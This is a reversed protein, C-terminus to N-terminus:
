AEVTIFEFKEVDFLGMDTLKLKPIVPLSMFSLTMVPDIGPEIGLKQHAVVHIHQLQEEVWIGSQDSMIGGVPLPMSSLVHGDLVIAIGGQINKIEEIAKFMDSNSVGAVIINHSDHAVSVAIAGRKLGFGQLLAVGVNGTHQHREVVAVKVINKQPNYVFDGEANSNVVALGKETVVEGPLVKITRVKNGKLHLCLKNETFNQLYVSNNVSEIAARKFPLSYHGAQAVQKGEIYVSSPYRFEKLDPWLAIDARLGPALAGRDYLRFCEAANLTAMTIAELPNMGEKVCLRLSANLHGKDFITKAHLDDSCLLCRRLNKATVGPLLNRLNHCASGNRLMVYMGLALRATMEEITSCEHETHIGVAAYAMLDKGLLGPCHGDILKGARKAAELKRLVEPEATLVGPYNMFEGLGIIQSKKLPQEMDAANVIAGAHEFPTAPVCSPLMYKIDLVTEEAARLMYDLGKLGAVNVIEHPDAIITTTGLPVVLHGFEEPTLYSSEIHIHGEILGPLAYQGQADIISEGEYDGGVGAIIGDVIAIDGYILKQNYVDVIKCNKLVLDAPLLGRAVQILKQLSM